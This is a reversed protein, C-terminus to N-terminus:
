MKPLLFLRGVRWGGVCMGPHRCCCGTAVVGQCATLQLPVRARQKVSDESDRACSVPRVLCLDQEHMLCSVPRRPLCLDQEHM